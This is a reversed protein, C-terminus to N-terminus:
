GQEFKAFQAMMRRRSGDSFKVTMHMDVGFGSLNVIEGQGYLHHVVHQGVRYHVTEQSFDDFDAASSRRIAAAPERAAPRTPKERIDVEASL